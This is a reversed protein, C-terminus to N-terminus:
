VLHFAQRPSGVDPTFGLESKPWASLMLSVVFTLRLHSLLGPM